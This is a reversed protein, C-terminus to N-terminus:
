FSCIESFKGTSYGMIKIWFIALFDGLNKNCKRICISTSVKIFEEELHPLMERIYSVSEKISPARGKSRQTTPAPPLPPPPASLVDSVSEALMYQLQSDDSISCYYYYYYYHYLEM